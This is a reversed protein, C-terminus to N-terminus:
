ARGIRDSITETSGISSRLCLCRRVETEQTDRGSDGDITSGISPCTIAGVATDCGVETTNATEITLTRCDGGSRASRRIISGSCDHCAHVTLGSRNREILLTSIRIATATVIDGDDVSTDAEGICESTDGVTDPRSDIDTLDTSISISTYTM